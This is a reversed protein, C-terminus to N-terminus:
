LEFNSHCIFAWQTIAEAKYFHYVRSIEDQPAKFALDLGGCAM